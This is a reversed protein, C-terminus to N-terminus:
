DTVADRAREDFVILRESPRQAGCAEDSAIRALHLAFLDPAALCAASRLVRLALFGDRPAAPPLSTERARRSLCLTPSRRTTPSRVRVGDVKTRIWTGWGILCQGTARRTTGAFM